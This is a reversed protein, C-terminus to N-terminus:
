YKMCSLIQKRLFNLTEFKWRYPFYKLTTNLIKDLSPRAQVDLYIYRFAFLATSARRSDNFFEQPVSYFISEFNHLMFHFKTQYWCLSCKPGIALRKYLKTDFANKREIRICVDRRREREERRVRLLYLAKRM